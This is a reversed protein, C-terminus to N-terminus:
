SKKNIVAIYGVLCFLTSINKREIKVSFFKAFFRFNRIQFLLTPLPKILRYPSFGAGFFQKGINIRHKM